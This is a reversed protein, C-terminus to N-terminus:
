HPRPHRPAPYGATRPHAPAHSRQAQPQRPAQMSPATPGGYMHLGARARTQREAEYRQAETEQRQWMLGRQAWRMIFLAHEKEKRRAERSDIYTSLDPSEIYPVNPVDLITRRRQRQERQAESEGGGDGHHRAHLPPRHVIRRGTATAVLQTSNDETTNAPAATVSGDSSMSSGTDGDEEEEAASSEEEEEEVWEETVTADVAVSTVAGAVSADLVTPHNDIVHSADLRSHALLVALNTHKTHVERSVDAVHTEAAAEAELATTDDGDNDSVGAGAHLVSFRGAQSAGCFLVRTMDHPMPLTEARAVAAAAAPPTAVTVDTASTSISTTTHTAMSTTVRPPMTSTPNVVTAEPAVPLPSTQRHVDTAGHEHRLMTVGGVLSAGEALSRTHPSPPAAADETRREQLRSNGPSNHLISVPAVVVASLDAHGSTMAHRLHRRLQRISTDGPNNHDGTPLNHASVDKSSPPDTLITVHSTFGDGDQASGAYSADADNRRRSATARGPTATSAGDGGSHHEETSERHTPHPSASHSSPPPTPSVRVNFGTGVRVPTGHRRTSAGASCVRAHGPQPQPPPPGGRSADASAPVCSSAGGQASEVPATETAGARERAASRDFRQAQAATDTPPAPQPAPPQTPQTQHLLCKGTACRCGVEGFTCASNDRLGSVPDDGLRELAEALAEADLSSSRTATDRYGAGWYSASTSTDRWTKEVRSVEATEAASVASVMGPLLVSYGGNSQRDSVEAIASVSEEDGVGNLVTASRPEAASTTSVRSDHFSLGYGGRSQSMASAEGAAASHRSDMVSGYGGRSQSMASAEGAAASHRSDMVSGYGGRSQSMASAEGATASHRSDMVSGYGGRSQSIASAEGAAASHRSDMVSGYGGRSQSMASAEGAAASHRSDMVSGYGGRSQSMASAEGAAASHRSDMVSGYGGRSQSIASAEGAAASHRSDMVSGYGGRSQSMASAEGAAASHRSDMVSGYGGRSQSMASAEGATASHRSDMVSGYGGRSQSMASAEGATASHRSDMVSGYGGRSQSIASAEGAAASHRSDMVSGYGGRSQSMASAEGAAASHRSDMVSGYGGRSQTTSSQHLLVPSHPSLISTRSADLTHETSASSGGETAAAFVDSLSRQVQTTSRRQSPTTTTACGVAGGESTLPPRTAADHLLSGYASSCYDDGTQDDHTQTHPSAVSGSRNDSGYSRQDADDDDASTQGCPSPAMLSGYAAAGSTDDLTEVQTRLLSGFDSAGARGNYSQNSADHIASCHPSRGACSHSDFASYAVDGGRRSRDATATSSQTAGDRSRATQSGSYNVGSGSMAAQRRGGRASQSTRNAAATSQDFVSYNATADTSTEAHSDLASRRSASPASAWASTQLASSEGEGFASYEPRRREATTSGGSRSVVETLSDVASTAATDIRSELLSGYERHALGGKADVAVTQTTSAPRTGDKETETVSGRCPSRGPRHTSMSADPLLMSYCGDTGTVTRSVSADAGNLYSYRQRKQQQQQQQPQTERRYKSDVTHDLLSFASMDVASADPPLLSSSVPGRVASAGRGTEHAGDPSGGADQVASFVMTSLLTKSVAGAGPAASKHERDHDAGDNRNVGRSHVAADSRRPRNNSVAAPEGAVLTDQASAGADTVAVINSLCPSPASPPESASAGVGGAKGSRQRQQQQQQLQQVTNVASSSRRQQGTTGTGAVVTPSAQPPDCGGPAGEGVICDQYFLSLGADADGVHGIASFAAMSPMMGLAGSGHGSSREPLGHRSHATAAGLAAAHHHPSAPPAPTRTEPATPTPVPPTYDPGHFVSPEAVISSIDAEVVEFVNRARAHHDATDVVVDVISRDEAKALHRDLVADNRTYVHLRDYPLPSAVHGSPQPSLSTPSQSSSFSTTSVTPLDSADQLADFAATRRRPRTRQTADGGGGRRSSLAGTQTPSTPPTITYLHKPHKRNQEKAERRARRIENVRPLFTAIATAGATTAAAARDHTRGAATPSTLLAVYKTAADDGFKDRLLYWALIPLLRRNFPASTHLSRKRIAELELLVQEETFVKKDLLDVLVSLHPNSRAVSSLDSQELKRSVKPPAVDARCRAPLARQSSVTTSQQAPHSSPTELSFLDSPPQGFDKRLPKFSSSSTSQTTNTGSGRTAAHARQATRLSTPATPRVPAAPPPPLVTVAATSSLRPAPSRPRPTRITAPSDMEYQVASITVTEEARQATKEAKAAATTPTAAAATLVLPTASSCAESSSSRQRSGNHASSSYVESSLRSPSVPSVRSSTNSRAETDEAASVEASFVKRPTNCLSMAEPLNKAPPFAPAVRRVPSAM